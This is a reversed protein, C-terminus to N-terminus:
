RLRKATTRASSRVVLRAPLVAARRVVVKKEMQDLLLSVTSHVMDASPQAVSTLKYGGWAAEPVDDYGVISLDQPIRLGFHDRAVDMVAFAMHDNAVFIADPKTKPALLRRAAEAAGDFTYNGVERSFCTLGAEALGTFFGAERDRSTSSDENGAIFAIRKHGADALFRAVLRGGEINDSIVSSAATDPAYRNLLVVPTGTAACERALGSSLTASAMIIGDVQFELVRAVVDDQDGPETMFLLVQYGHAQLARSIQELVIPYFHNDLYAVLLAVLRSRGSTIARALANPRYGLKSAAKLVKARTKKSVSGGPSFTRSVASQSVKAAKAVETSTVPPKAM